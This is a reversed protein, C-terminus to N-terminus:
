VGAHQLPLCRLLSTMELLQVVFCDEGSIAALMQPVALLATQLESGEDASIDDESSSGAQSSNSAEHAPKSVETACDSWVDSESNVEEEPQPLLARLQHLFRVPVKLAAAEAQM